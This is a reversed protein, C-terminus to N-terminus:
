DAKLIQCNSLALNEIYDIENCTVFKLTRPVNVSTTRDVALYPLNNKDLKFKNRKNM